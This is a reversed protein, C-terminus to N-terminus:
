SYIVSNLVIEEATMDLSNMHQVWGMPDVGRDPPPNQSELQSMLESKM